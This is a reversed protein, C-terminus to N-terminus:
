QIPSNNSKNVVWNAQQYDLGQQLLPILRLDKTKRFHGEGNVQYCTNKTYFINEDIHEDLVLTSCVWYGPEFRGKRDWLINGRVIKYEEDKGKLHFTIVEWDKIKCDIKHPGVTHETDTNKM